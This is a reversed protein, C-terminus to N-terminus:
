ARLSALKINWAVGAVGLANNGRAAIIGAVHTGHGNPDDLCSYTDNVFNRSLSTNINNVLDPHDGDIGSDLVGVTISASGTSYSWAQPLQIKSLASQQNYYPDNPTVAFLSIEYDPGAYIIDSRASLSKIAAVVNEKGPELLEVCLVQNFEEAKISFGNSYSSFKSSSSDISKNETDYLDAFVIETAAQTLNSVRSCSIEPFSFEDYGVSTLSAENSLVVLVRDDAFSSDIDINTYDGINDNPEIVSGDLGITLALVSQSVAFVLLVVFYRM